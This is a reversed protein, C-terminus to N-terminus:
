IQWEGVFPSSRVLLSKQFFLFIRAAGAGKSTSGYLIELRQLNYNRLIGYILEREM